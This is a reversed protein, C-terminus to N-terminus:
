LGGSEMKSQGWSQAHQGFDTSFDSVAQNAGGPYFAQLGFYGAAIIGGPIGGYIGVGTFFANETAMGPSVRDNINKATPHYYNYLGVADLLEGAGAGALGLDRVTSNSISLLSTARAADILVVGGGYAANSKNGLDFWDTGGQSALTNSNALLAAAADASINIANYITEQLEQGKNGPAAFLIQDIVTEETYFNEDLDNPDVSALKGNKDFNFNLGKVSSAQVGASQAYLAVFASTQADPGNTGDLDDFYTQDDMLFYENAKAVWDAISGAGFAAMPIPALGVRKLDGLPDNYMIPNNGSYQYSSM